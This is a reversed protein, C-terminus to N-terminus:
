PVTAGGRCWNARRALGPCICPMQSTRNVTRQITDDARTHHRTDDALVNYPTMGGRDANDLLRLSKNIM